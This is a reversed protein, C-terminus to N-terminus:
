PREQLTPDNALQMAVEDLALLEKKDQDEKWRTQQTERLKELVKVQKAAEALAARATDAKQQAAAIKAALDLAKRHIGLLFRRHATIFNVDIPGLLRNTRLDDNASQTTQNLATLQDQLEKVAALALAYDRQKEREIIERQRLVPSLKFKFQAM